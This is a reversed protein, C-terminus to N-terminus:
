STTGSEVSKEKFGGFEVPVVLSEDVMERYIKVEDTYSSAGLGPSCLMNGSGNTIAM